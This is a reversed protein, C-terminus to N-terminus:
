KVRVQHGRFRKNSHFVKKPYRDFDESTYVEHETHWVNEYKFEAADRHSDVVCLEVKVTDDSGIETKLPIFEKGTFKPALDSAKYLVTGESVEKWGSVPIQLISPFLIDRAELTM